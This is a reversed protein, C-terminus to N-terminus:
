KKTKKALYINPVGARCPRAQLGEGMLFGEM